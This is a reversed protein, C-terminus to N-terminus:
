ASWTIEYGNSLNFLSNCPSTGSDRYWYQYRKTQGAGVAGDTSVSVTTQTTFGNGSNSFRVELRRVGGGACRLGDGFPNGNGSNVANNGQFFLGPGPTLNTASLVLDDAFISASGSGTLVLDAAGISASGSGTLVGGSGTDNPCGEGAGGTNSCPCATASGDGSCYSTGPGGSIPGGVGHLTGTITFDASIGTGADVFSFTATQDSHLVVQGSPNLTVRGSNPTPPGSTGTLDTVSASGGLPTVTLTGSIMTVTWDTNFDGGGAITFAPTSVSFRLDSVILDALHIGFPGPIYGVLDTTMALDGSLVEGNSFPSGSFDASTTGEVEFNHNPVGVISGLSSTASWVWGNESAIHDFTHNQAGAPLAFLCLLVLGLSPTSINRKM